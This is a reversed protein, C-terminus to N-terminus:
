LWWRTHPRLHGMTRGTSFWQVAPVVSLEFLSFLAKYLVGFKSERPIQHMVYRYCSPVDLRALQLVDDGRDYDLVRFAFENYVEKRHKPVNAVTKKLHDSGGTYANRIVFQDEDFWADCGVGFVHRYRTMIERALVLHDYTRRNKGTPDPFAYGAGEAVMGIIAPVQTVNSIWLPRFRNKMFLLMSTLGYLIWAVGRARYNPDVVVLGLHVVPINEGRLSCTMITLANFAVPRGTKGDYILTVVANDLTEKEGKVVGYDLSGIQLSEVVTRLDGLLNQLEDPKMWLGPREIVRTIQTRKDGLKLNIFGNTIGFM